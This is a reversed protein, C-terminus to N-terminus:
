GEDNGREEKTDAGEGNLVSRLRKAVKGIEAVSKQYCKLCNSEGNLQVVSPQGCVCKGFGSM